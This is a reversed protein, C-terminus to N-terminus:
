LYHYSISSLKQNNAVRKEESRAREQQQHFKYDQRVGKPGTFSSGIKLHHRLATDNQIREMDKDVVANVPNFGFQEDDSGESCSDLRNGEDDPDNMRKIAKIIAEDAVDEAADTLNIM